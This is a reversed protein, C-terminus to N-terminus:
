SLNSNKKRLTQHQQQRRQVRKPSADPLTSTDLAASCGQPMNTDTICAAGPSLSFLFNRYGHGKSVDFTFSYIGSQSQTFVYSVVRKSAVDDAFAGEVSSPNDAGTGM